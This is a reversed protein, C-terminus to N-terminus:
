QAQLVVRMDNVDYTTIGDTAERISNRLLTRNQDLIYTKSM